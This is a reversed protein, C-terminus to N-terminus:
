KLLLCKKTAISKDNVQLEYFYIGSSVENGNDDKGNWIVSHEGAELGNMVYTKIRQGRVNYIAIQSYEHYNTTEFRITTTPNFPNPYNQLSYRTVPTEIDGSVPQTYRTTFLIAQENGIEHATAPYINAYTMCVGDTQTIDEIGITAFNDDADNNTVNEYLFLIDGDGTPSYHYAPDYLIVQFNQQNYSPDYFHYWEIYLKHNTEDYWQYMTGNSLNDWLPAIMAKPGVGSPINRNRHFVLNTEGMTLWGNTSVSAKTYEEGFYRFTFPLDIIATRGDGTSHGGSIITGNGGSQPRLETWAYTPALPNNQDQSEIACYGYQSFTPSNITVEGITINLPLNQVETGNQTITLHCHATEGDFANVATVQFHTQNIVSQDPVISPFDSQGQNIILLGNDCVIEAQFDGTPMSGTNLLKVAIDTQQAQPLFGNPTYIVLEETALEPSSIEIPVIHTQTGFDSSTEIAADLVYGELWPSGLTGSFFGSAQGGAAMEGLDIPDSTIVFDNDYSILSASVSGATTIGINELIFNVAVNAGPHANDVDLAEIKLANGAVVEVTHSKPVFGVKSATVTYNGAELDAPVFAHGSADTCGVAVLAESTTIAITFGELEDMTNDLQVEIHDTGYIRQPETFFDCTDPTKIWVSLGPDGLLNYTYFYFQDSVHSNGWAHGNPYNNYLEMKGSLMMEYCRTVNNQTIGQYIGMDMANNFWTKTDHETPGIFGIAGKPTSPSGANVWTEGFSSSNSPNGFDGGGCVISTVMPLKFGNSLSNIDSTEMMNGYVGSWYNPAGFGRYNIFGKGQNIYNMLQTHSSNYPEIFTDVTTYEFDLLKERVAMVTERGSYYGYYYTQVLSLMLAEDMWNSSLDPQSEYHIIKSIITQLQMLTQFSLRGIFVDPFYDSGELLTYSHDTENMDGAPYTAPKYFTPIIFSGTVDGVLVVYQPPTEWTDYANQLWALIDTNQTGTENTTVVTTEYGLKQKWSILPALTATAGPPSIFLYNGKETGRSGEAGLIRATAFEAFETSCPTSKLLPNEGRSADLKLQIDVDKLVRIKNQAPNYQVPNVAVQCFRYGRMINPQSISVIEQPLWEDRSYYSDSVPIADASGVPLVPSDLSYEEYRYTNSTVSLNGTAPLAVLKSYIPLEAEGPRGSPTADQVSIRTYLAEHALASLTFDGQIEVPSDANQHSISIASLSLAIGLFMLAIIQKM